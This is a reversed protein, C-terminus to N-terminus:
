RGSPTVIGIEVDSPSVKAPFPLGGVGSIYSLLSPSSTLQIDGSGVVGSLSGAGGGSVGGGVFSGVGGFVGSGTQNGVGDRNNISSGIISSSFGGSDFGGDRGDNDKGDCVDAFSSVASKAPNVSRGEM